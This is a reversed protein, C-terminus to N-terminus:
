SHAIARVGCAALGAGVAEDTFVGEVGEDAAEGDVKQGANGDSREIEDVGDLEPEAEGGEADSGGGGDGQNEAGAKGAFDKGPAREAPEAADAVAEVDVV